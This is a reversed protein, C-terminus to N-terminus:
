TRAPKYKGQWRINNGIAISGAANIFLLITCVRKGENSGKASSVCPHKTGTVAVTKEHEAGLSIGVEDANWRFELPFRGYKKDDNEKGETSRLLLRLGIHFNLVSAFREEDSGPKNNCAVRLSFRRRQCFGSWWADSGKFVVGKGYISEVLEIARSRSKRVTVHAKKKIELLIDSFLREEMLPFRPAQVVLSKLSLCKGKKRCAIAIDLWEQFKPQKQVWREVLCRHVGYDKAVEDVIASKKKEQDNEREMEIIRSSYAFIVKFKFDLSYRQRVKKIKKVCLKSDDVMTTEAITGEEDIDDDDSDLDDVFFETLKSMHSDNVDKLEIEDNDNVFNDTLKRWNKGNNDDDDKLEKEDEEDAVFVDRLKSLNINGENEKLEIDHEKCVDTLRSLDINGKNDKLEAEDEEDDDIIIIDTLKSMNIREDVKHQEDDDSDLLFRERLAM